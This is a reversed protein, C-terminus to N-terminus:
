GYRTAPRVRPPPMPQIMRLCPSVMSWSTDTSRTVASPSSTVALSIM